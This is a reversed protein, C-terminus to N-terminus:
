LVCSKNHIFCGGVAVMLNALSLTTIGHRAAIIGATIVCSGAAEFLAVRVVM